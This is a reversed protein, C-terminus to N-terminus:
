NLKAPKMYNFTSILILIILLVIIILSEWTIQILGSNRGCSCWQCSDKNLMNNTRQQKPNYQKPNYQKPNYQILKHAYKGQADYYNIKKISKNIAPKSVRINKHSVQSARPEPKPEPKSDPGVCSKNYTGNNYTGNNIQKAIQDLQDHSDTDDYFSYALNM